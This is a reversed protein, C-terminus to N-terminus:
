REPQPVVVRVTIGDAGVSRVELDLAECILDAADAMAERLNDREDDTLEEDDSLDLLVDTITDIIGLRAENTNM